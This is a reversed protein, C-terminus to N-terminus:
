GPKPGRFRALIGQREHRQQWRAWWHEFSEQPLGGHRVALKSEGIRELQRRSARMLGRALVHELLEVSLGRVEDQTREDPQLGSLARLGRWATILAAARDPKATALEAEASRAYVQLLSRGGDGLPLMVRCLARRHEDWDLQLLWGVLAADFQDALSVAVSRRLQWVGYVAAEKAEAYSPRGDFYGVLLVLDVAKRRPESLLSRDAQVADSLRQALAFDGETLGTQSDALLRQVIHDDALGTRRLADIALNSLLADAQAVTPPVSPWLLSTLIRWEDPSRLAGAPLRVLVDVPDTAGSAALSAEAALRLRPRDAALRCIAGATGATLSSIANGFADPTETRAALIDLAAERVGANAPQMLWAELQPSPNNWLAPVFITDALDRQAETDLTPFWTTAEAAGAAIAQGAARVYLQVLPGPVPAHRETAERLLRSWRPVDRLEGIERAAGAVRDWPQMLMDPARRAAFELGDLVNQEQWEVAVPFTEFLLACRVFHDLEGPSLPPDTPASQVHRIPDERFWLEAVVREYEGLTVEGTGDPRRLDITRYNGYTPVSVDPTAFALLASHSEPRSTFTTFSIAWALASPLSRTVASIWQAASESDETILVLRGHQGELIGRVVALLRALTQHRDSVALFTSTAGPGVADSTVLEKAAVRELVGTRVSGSRWTPSEWLDIPLGPLREAADAALAQAFYNGWRGTHDRGIYSARYLTVGEAAFSYGFAVPFRALEDPSPMSPAAPPPEYVSDRIAATRLTSPIDPTMARIQFGSIGDIGDECSTYEIRGIM